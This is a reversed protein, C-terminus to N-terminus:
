EPKVDPAGVSESLRYVDNEDHTTSIELIITETIGRFMHYENPFITKPRTFPALVYEKDEIILVAYGEICFFTEQKKKHCHYSSRADKDLILLKGCYEPRNVLWLEEGWVKDVTILNEKIL